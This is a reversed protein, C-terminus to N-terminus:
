SDQRAIETILVDSVAGEALVQRAAALLASRLDTMKQGATFTGDFGGTNAHRFMAELFQDRLRPQLDEIEGSREAEIEVAVSLVVMAVIRDERFVPVVFPKEIAVLAAEAGHGSAAHGADQAAGHGAEAPEACTEGEPCPAAAHEEEAVPKLAVGAAVGAGLGVLAIVVPMLIKM